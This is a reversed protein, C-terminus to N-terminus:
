LSRPGCASLTSSIHATIDWSMTSLEVDTLGLGDAYFARQKDLDAVSLGVHDHTIRM